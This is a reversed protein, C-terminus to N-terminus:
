SVLEKSFWLVKSPAASKSQEKRLRAIGLLQDATEGDDGFAAWGFNIDIEVADSESLKLKRGFFGTHIRAMVEHSVEKSATPLVVLFEDSMSRAFFDMQRLNDRVTQAVFNLVRDGAAHGFKRNVNDFDRVDITLITLPREDRKRLTEAIQNELVVYFARENPLDTTADTLANIQSRELALSSLVLPAVRSGIAEFISGKENEPEYGPDFYLQFMGFVEVGHMLPIALSPLATEGTFLKESGTEVRGSLFSRGALGAELGTVLGKRGEMGPGDVEAVTLHTRAQDLLVLEIAQFPVIRKIRSAVLRFTDAARLTGAFFENAEDLAVLQRDIDDEPGEASRDALNGARQRAQWIYSLVCVVLFSGIITSFGRTKAEVEVNSNALLYTAVIAILSATVILIPYSSTKRSSM